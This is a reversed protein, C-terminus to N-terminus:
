GFFQQSITICPHNINLETDFYAKVLNYSFLDLSLHKNGLVSFQKKIRFVPFIATVTVAVLRKILLHEMKLYADFM